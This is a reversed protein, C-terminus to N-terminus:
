WPKDFIAALSGKDTLLITGSNKKWSKAYWLFNQWAITTELKGFKGLPLDLDYKTQKIRKCVLINKSVM